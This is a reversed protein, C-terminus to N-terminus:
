ALASGNLAIMATRLAAAREPSTQELRGWAFASRAPASERWIQAALTEVERDTPDGGGSVCRLLAQSIASRMM